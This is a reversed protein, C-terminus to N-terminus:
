KIQINQTTVIDAGPITEGSEIAAKVATKSVTPDPVILLEPRNSMAWSILKDPDYIRTSKSARFSISAKPDTIKGLDARQLQESLYTTLRELHREATQRRKKLSDEETKYANVEAKLDKIFCAVSVAKQQIEGQIGELTDLIAQEDIDEVELLDWVKQYDDSLQYLHM